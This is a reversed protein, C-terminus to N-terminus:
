KKATEYSERQIYNFVRRWIYGRIMSIITLVATMALNSSFSVNWVFDQWIYEQIENEFYHALQCISFAVIMGSFVNLMAEILSHRRSQGM